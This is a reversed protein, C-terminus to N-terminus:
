QRECVLSKSDRCYRYTRDLFVPLHMPQHGVPVSGLIKWGLERCRRSVLARTKDEDGCHTFGGLLIGANSDLRGSESLQTLFRDLRYPAEDIDEILVATGALEPLWPTGALSALVALNGGWVPAEFGELSEGPHSVPLPTPRGSLARLLSDPEPHDPVECLVSSHICELNLQLTKILAFLATIDSYGLLRGGPSPPSTGWHRALQALVRTAGYGGRGCWVVSGNASFCGLFEQVREQDSGALYPYDDNPRERSEWPCHFRFQQWNSRAFSLASHLKAASPPGSPFPVIITQM